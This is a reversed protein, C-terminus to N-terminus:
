ITKLHEIISELTILLPARSIMDNVATDTEQSNFYLQYSSINSLSNNGFATISVVKKNNLRATRTTSLVINTEGSLSIAILLDDDAMTKAIVEYHNYEQVAISKIELIMLQHALYSAMHKSPGRGIIYVTGSKSIKSAVKKFVEDQNIKFTKAISDLTDSKFDSSQLQPGAALNGRVHFKLENFGEFGLKQACTIVVTKSIHCNKALQQATSRATFEPNQLIYTVVNRENNTLNDYIERNIKLM